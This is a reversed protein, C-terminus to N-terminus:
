GHCFSPLRTRCLSCETTWETGATLFISESSQHCRPTSLQMLSAMSPNTFIWQETGPVDYSILIQSCRTHCSFCRCQCNIFKLWLTLWSIFKEHLIKCSAMSAANDIEPGPEDKVKKARSSGGLGDNSKRKGVMTRETSRWQHLM